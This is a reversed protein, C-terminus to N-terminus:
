SPALAGLLPTLTPVREALRPLGVVGGGGGRCQLSM